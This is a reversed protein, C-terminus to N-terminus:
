KKKVESDYFVWLSSSRFVLLSFAMIVGFLVWAIASAGGMQYDKFATNYLYPVMMMSANDPGGQTMIFVQGFTQLGGIIGMILNFFLVSSLMPITIKLFVTAKSAGDIEAAEYLTEPIGQMGALVLITSSGVNWISMIILAPLVSAPDLLWEPGPIGIASLATNLPGNPSFVRQFLLAAAVLPIVSPLFILIRFLTRGTLKKGLFYSLFVSAVLGVAVTFVSYVLTNALVKLFLKDQLFLYEFNKLGVFEPPNFIDWNTLSIFVSSVIPGATFALFGLVWPSIFAWFGLVEATQSSIRRM